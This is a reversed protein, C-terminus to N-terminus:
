RNAACRPPAYELALDRATRNSFVYAAPQPRGLFVRPPMEVRAAIPTRRVFVGELALGLLLLGLPVRWLEALAHGGSWIAIIGLVAGLLVLVYARGALHM